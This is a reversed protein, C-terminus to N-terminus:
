QHEYLLDHMQWFKGQGGAAEAAQAAVSAHPHISAHPFTRFVVRLRDGFHERVARVIPVARGCYDCEYDGYELLTLPADPRGRIHDRDSVLISLRQPPKIQSM